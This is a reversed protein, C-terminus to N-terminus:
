HECTPLCFPASEFNGLSFMVENTESDRYKFVGDSELRFGSAEALARIKTGVFAGGDKSIINIGMIM